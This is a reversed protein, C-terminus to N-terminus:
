DEAAGVMLTESGTTFNAIGTDAPHSYIVKLKIVM